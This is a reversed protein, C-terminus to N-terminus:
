RRGEQNLETLRKAVPRPICERRALVVRDFVEDGFANLAFNVAVLVFRCNEHTYPKTPDIRDLSPAFARKAAGQGYKDNNFALGTISCRGSCEKWLDVMDDKSLEAKLNPWKIQNIRNKAQRVQEAWGPLDNADTIAAVTEGEQPPRHALWARGAHTLRYHGEGDKTILREAQLQVLAWAHNNVFSPWGAAGPVLGCEEAVHRRMDESNAVGIGMLTLSCCRLDAISPVIPDAFKSPRPM